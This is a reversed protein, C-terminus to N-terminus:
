ADYFLGRSRLRSVVAEWDLGAAECWFASKRPNSFFAIERARDQLWDRKLLALKKPNPHEPVPAELIRIADAVLDIALRREPSAPMAERM